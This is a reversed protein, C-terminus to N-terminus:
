NTSHILYKSANFIEKWFHNDAGNIVDIVVVSVSMLFMGVAAKKGSFKCLLVNM